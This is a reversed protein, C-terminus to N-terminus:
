STLKRVYDVIDSNVERIRKNKQLEDMTFWQYFVGQYEFSEKEMEELLDFDVLYFYHHYKKEKNRPISVKKHIMDELFQVSISDKYVGMTKKLFEKIQDDSFTDEIKCNLFLFSSWRKDYYQLYKGNRNRLILIAHKKEEMLCDGVNIIINM